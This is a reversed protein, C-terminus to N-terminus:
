APSPANEYSAASLEPEDEVTVPAEQDKTARRKIYYLSVLAGLLINFTYFIPSQWFVWETISQLFLGCIGFFLGVGIRLMPDPSRPWLFSAGMQLWRLWVLGFIVLGPIGLEGLTLAGLSHAPAAQAEDVNSDPPIYLSPEHETGRYPVFRYGLRPGYRNSAWYSWNNVGVGFTREGIISQAIRIYYGRGLSRKNGYEQHLNTEKFRSELTKWSKAAIGTVALAVMVGFVVKRPTFTIPITCLTAVFLVLAIIIIGMRSITLVEGVGALAIAAACLIKLWVSLRSNLAAVFLPATMCFFVSLSNSDDITGPVRHYGDAYRQKLALLGEYCVLLGLTYLLIRLERESRLYFAVALMVICGRVMEFLGFLGFIQPETMGVNFCAYAFYLLMIGFGPPWFGRSEGRRPALLSSALLSISLVDLLSVEFGRQTGRYWEHSDFNVDLHEIMPAFFVLLMFFLDRIRKSLSALVIGALMMGPIVTLGFLAKMPM